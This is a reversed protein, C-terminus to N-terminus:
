LQFADKSRRLCTSIDPMTLIIDKQAFHYLMLECFDNYALLTKSKSTWPKVPSKGKAPSPHKAVIPSFMDAPADKFQNVSDSIQTLISLLSALQALKVNLTPPIQALHALWRKSLWQRKRRSKAM